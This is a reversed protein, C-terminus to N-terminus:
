RSFFFKMFVDLPERSKELKMKMVAGQWSNLLVQAAEEADLHGLKLDAADMEALSQALRDLM